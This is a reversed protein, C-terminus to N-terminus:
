RQVERSLRAPQEGFRWISTTLDVPPEFKATMGHLISGLACTMDDIPCGDARPRGLAHCCDKQHLTGCVTVAIGEVQDHRGNDVTQVRESPDDKAVRVKSFVRHLFGQDVAPAFQWLQAVRSAEVGPEM